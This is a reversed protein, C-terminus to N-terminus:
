VQRCAKETASSHVLSVADFLKSGFTTTLDGDLSEQIKWFHQM